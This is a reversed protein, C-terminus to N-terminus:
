MAANVHSAMNLDLLAAIRAPPPPTNSETVTHRGASTPEETAGKVTTIVLTHLFGLIEETERFFLNQNNIFFLHHAGPRNLSFLILLGRDLHWGM